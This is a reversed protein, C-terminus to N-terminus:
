TELFDLISAGFQEDLLTELEDKIWSNSELGATYERYAVCSYEFPLMCIENTLRNGILEKSPLTRPYVGICKGIYSIEKMDLTYKVVYFAGLYDQAGFHETDEDDLYADAPKIKGRLIDRIYEVWLLHFKYITLPNSEIFQVSVSETEIVDAAYSIAGSRSQMQANQVETQPPTFDTAFFPYVKAFDELTNVTDPAVGILSTISSWLSTADLKVNGAYEIASFHPPIMFLLTYGTVDPNYSSYLYNYFKKLPKNDALLLQVLQPIGLTILSQM